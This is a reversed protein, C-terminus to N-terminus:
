LYRALAARRSEATQAQVQLFVSERVRREASTGAIIAAGARAIVVATSARIALELSAARLDLRDERNALSAVDALAYARGRIERCQAALSEVVDALTRDQREDAIGALEGLAGRTVGFAAPNADSTKLADAELWAPADHVAAVSEDPIFVDSLCLPRTHTGSMALLRLPEGVHLGDVAESSRGAPLFASVLTTADAGDGRAMIMVVDAIDWSTVWDLTGTFRWGGAVRTALPNPAGPRRVHAFAVAALYEGSEMGALWRAKLAAVAPAAPTVEANALTKLPTQHQVWCFWTSADAASLLEGLERQAHPALPIGLLGAAALADISARAVGTADSEKARPAIFDAIM